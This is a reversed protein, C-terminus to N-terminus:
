GLPLAGPKPGPMRPNSDRMGLWSHSQPPKSDKEYSSISSESLESPNEAIKAKALISFPKDVVLSLEDGKRIFKAGISNLIIQKDIFDANEYAKDINRVKEFFRECKDLWSEEQSSNDKALEELQSLKESIAIKQIKYEEDSILDGNSNSESLWKTTLRQLKRQTDNLAKQQQKRKLTMVKNEKLYVRKLYKLSWKVISEPIAIKSLLQELDLDLQDQRIHKTNSCTADKGKARSCRYYHIGKQYEGSMVGECEVCEVRAAYTYDHKCRKPRSNSSIIKQIKEFEQKTIIPDHSGKHIEDLYLFEGCYFPQKLIRRVTEKALKNGSIKGKIGLKYAEEQLQAYNYAGTLTLDMLKRILPGEVPDIEVRNLPRDIAELMEQKKSDFGKGVIVGNEGINLYGYPVSGPYEGKLLKTKLNNKVFASTDDSSKKAMAFHINMMFKDDSNNLYTKQPTKLHKIKGEDMFTIVLGGDASNRAIRTLHWTLIANAKGSEIEQMMHAFKPRGRKYGSMDECIIKHIELNHKEAFEIMERKQSEISLMQQDERDQSRRCYLIYKIKM